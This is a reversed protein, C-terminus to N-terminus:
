VEEVPRGTADAIPAMARVAAARDLKVAGGLTRAPNLYGLVISADSVTPETGGRGYCAPGPFAGASRPGVVLAGTDMRAISGGGARISHVAVMPLRIRREALERDSSIEAQGDTILCTDTTTGGMDLTLANAIGLERITAVTASVGASP